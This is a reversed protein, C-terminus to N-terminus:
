RSAPGVNEEVTRGIRPATATIQSPLDTQKDRADLLDRLGKVLVDEVDPAVRSPSGTEYGGQTYAIRTGIYRPGYDGYAATAVFLDPRLRQAFLQYEVFLEGPLHLISACGLRLVSLDITKGERRRRSWALDRALAFTPHAAFKKAPADEALWPAVPLAVPLCRWSLDATTIPSKHSASDALAAAMGDALRGALALRNEPSGDNYKGATVNGAAGNFHVFFVGPQAEDRLRRAIGVFDCSVGGKGYYSQPHTAYYSLVAVPQEGNWLSLVRVVPDIIGEPAARVKPDVMSSWRIHLVKGDSGIVRRNSAVSKVDAKGLGLHTPVKPQTLEKKIARSARAFVEEDFGVLFGQGPQVREKMLEEANPDFGPADHQHLCHVAVRDPSTGAASALAKRWSDHGQNSIGVWDVACLVIPKQDSLFIIGRCTLPDDIGKAKEVAGECLPTGLPPTVDFEFTAVKLRSDHARASNVGAAILIGLLTRLIRGKM